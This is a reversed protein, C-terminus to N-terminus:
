FGLDEPLMDPVEFLDRGFLLRVIANPNPAAAGDSKLFGAMQQQAALSIAIGQLGPLTITDGETGLFLVLFAHPNAPLGPVLARATDHRYMWTSERMNAARILNSSATNPVTRDGRAIQWLVRKIPVGPLTSSALHPAFATPDGPMSLWEYREFLNQLEIAGPVDNVKAAQWRLVYNEDFTAGNNLVPPQRLGLIASTIPRFTPSWRAIEVISGGGVNLVAARTAPEIANFIAGYISGLSQGAYYIRAADLDPAGDGDVDIGARVARVLQALDLATQRLCDRLVGGEAPLICGEYAGISGDGDVDMGRGGGPLTTTVGNRESIVVTSEPGYGHGVATIALTAFGAQAFSASVATAGGLRSDGLGHGFIVVPYGDSPKATEPLYVSFFLEQDAPRRAGLAGTPQPPIGQREDLFNPSRYSGFAVRGVGSLLSPELPFSLDSFRNTGTQRHWALSAIDAIRFVGRPAIMRPLPPSAEVLTRAGEMWATASLTTFVSAAVVPQAFPLGAVAQALAACYDNASDTVCATYAPDATVPAGSRDRVDGTVVLLYRRHQDLIRDSKAYGTNTAPDYVIQDVYGIEGTRFLGYEESTLNDLAVLYIGYRLTDPDIPGSFRVRVRPRLNFGDLQNVSQLEACTSPQAACDPLPLNVRRGTKQASDAVTLTDSPFPGTEPDSPEFRATVAFLPVSCLLLTRIWM